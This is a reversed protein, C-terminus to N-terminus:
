KLMPAGPMSWVITFGTRTRANHGYFPEPGSIAFKLAFSEIEGVNYLSILQCFTFQPPGPVRTTLTMRLISFSLM